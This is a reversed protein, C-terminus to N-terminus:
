RRGDEREKTLIEIWHAKFLGVWLDAIDSEVPYPDIGAERLAPRIVDERLVDDIGTLWELVAASGVQHAETIEDEDM